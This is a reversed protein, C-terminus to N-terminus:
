ALRYRLAVQFECFLCKGFRSPETQLREGITAQVFYIKVANETFRVLREDWVLVFLFSDM